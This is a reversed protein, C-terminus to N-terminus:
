QIHYKDDQAKLKSQVFEGENESTEDCLVSTYSGCDKIRSTIVNKKKKRHKSKSHKKEEESIDNMQADNTERRKRRRGKAKNEYGVAEDVKERYFANEKRTEILSRVSFGLYLGLLLGVLLVIFYISIAIVNM